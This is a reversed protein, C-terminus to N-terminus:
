FRIASSLTVEGKSLYAVDIQLHSGAVIGFGATGVTRDPNVSVGFGLALFDYNVPSRYIGGRVFIPVSGTPLAYEFGAHTETFDEPNLNSSSTGLSQSM